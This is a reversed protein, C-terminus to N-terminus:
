DAMWVLKVNNDPEYATGAPVVEKLWFPKYAGKTDMIVYDGSAFTGGWFSTTMSFLPQGTVPNVPAYTSSTSGGDLAGSNTGSVVFTTASTFTFTYTDDICGINNLTMYDTNITGAVSSVANQTKSAILDGLTILQAAFAGVAYTNVTGTTLVATMVNGAFSASTVDVIEDNTGDSLYIYAADTAYDSNEFLLNISTAGATISSNVEGAGYWKTIGSAASQTDNDATVPAIYFRDGGPSQTLLGTKMDSITENSTNRNALFLKRYRTVGAARETSTVRPFVANKTGSTVPSSLTILGGNTSLDSVTASKYYKIDTTEM